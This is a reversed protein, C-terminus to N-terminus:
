KFSYGDLAGNLEVYAANIRKENSGRRRTLPELEFARREISVLCSEKDIQRHM